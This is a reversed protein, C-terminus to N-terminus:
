SMSLTMPIDKVCLPLSTENSELKTRKGFLKKKKKRILDVLTLDENDSQKTYKLTQYSLKLLPISIM